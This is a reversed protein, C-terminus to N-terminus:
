DGLPGPLRTRVAHLVQEAPGPPIGVAHTIVHALVHQFVQAVVLIRHQHNILGSVHLLARV